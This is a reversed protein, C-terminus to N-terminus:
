GGEGRRAADEGWTCVDNSYVRKNEEGKGGCDRGEERNHTFQIIKVGFVCRGWAGGWPRWPWCTLNCMDMTLWGGARDALTGRQDRVAAGKGKRKELLWTYECKADLVKYNEVIQSDHLFNSNVIVIKNHHLKKLLFFISIRHPFATHIRWPPHNLLFRWFFFYFRYPM